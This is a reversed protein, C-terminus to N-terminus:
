YKPLSFFNVDFGEMAEFPLMFFLVTALVILAITVTLFVIIQLKAFSPNTNYKHIHYVVFLALISVILLFLLYFSFFLMTM